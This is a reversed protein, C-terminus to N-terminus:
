ARTRSQGPSPVSSATRPFASETARPEAQPGGSWPWAAPALLLLLATFTNIYVVPTGVVLMLVAVRFGAAPDRRTAILAAGGVVLALLAVSSSVPGAVGATRLIGALSLDSPGVTATARAIAVYDLHAQVGAGAVSLAVAAVATVAATVVGSWRRRVLLWLVFWIPTLKLLTLVAGLTGALGDRGRRSLLWVGLCGLWLYPNVNGVGFEFTLSFTLPLMAVATWAPQRRLLTALLVVLCAWGGAWWILMGLGSPLAALPRWLVAILPPSLLPVTWYPPKMTLPRDGSTLAYLQHGANLREGAALYTYADGPIGGVIFYSAISVLLAGVALPVLLRQTRTDAM